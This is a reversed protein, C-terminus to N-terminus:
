NRVVAQILPWNVSHNLYHFCNLEINFSVLPATKNNYNKCLQSKYAEHDHFIYLISKRM